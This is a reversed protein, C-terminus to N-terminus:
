FDIQLNDCAARVAIGDGEDFLDSVVEFRQGYM